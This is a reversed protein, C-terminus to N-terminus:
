GRSFRERGPWISRTFAGRRLGDVSGGDVHIREELVLDVCRYAVDMGVQRHDFDM